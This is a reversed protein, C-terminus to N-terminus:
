SGGEDFFIADMEDATLRYRRKIALMESQRFGPGVGNIRQNLTGLEIHLHKALDVQRDGNEKLVAKLKNSNM